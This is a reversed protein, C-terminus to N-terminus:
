TSHPDMLHETPASWMSLEALIGVFTLVFDGVPDTILNANAVGAMEFV